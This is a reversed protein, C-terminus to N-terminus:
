SYTNSAVAPRAHIEVREHELQARREVSQLACHVLDGLLECLADVRWSGLYGGRQEEVAVLKVRVVPHAASAFRGREM